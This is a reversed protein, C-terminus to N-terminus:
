KGKGKKEKKEVKKEKEIVVEPKIVPKEEVVPEIKVTLMALTPESLTVKNGNILVDYYDVGNTPLSILQSGPRVTVIEVAMEGTKITFKDGLKFIM